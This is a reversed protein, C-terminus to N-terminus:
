LAELRKCGSYVNTLFITEQFDLAADKLRRTVVFRQAKPFRECRPLLWHLLDCTRTFEDYAAQAATGVQAVHVAESEKGVALAHQSSPIGGDYVEQGTQPQSAMRCAPTCHPAAGRCGSVPSAPRFKAGDSM